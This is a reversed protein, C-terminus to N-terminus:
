IKHNLLDDEFLRIGKATAPYTDTNPLDLSTIKHWVVAILKKLRDNDQTAYNLALSTFKNDEDTSIFELVGEDISYKSGFSSNDALIKYFNLQRQYSYARIADQQTNKGWNYIPKSTKYDILSVSKDSNKKILDIKGTLKADGLNVNEPFFDHESVNSGSFFPKNLKIWTGLNESGKRKLLDYENDSLPYTRLKDNFYNLIALNKPFNGTNTFEKQTFELTKHVADGYMASPNLVEPVRLLHRFLFQQPGGRDVSLFDNLHTASLKYASLIPKLLSSLDNTPEPYINKWRKEYSGVFARAPVTPNIVSPIKANIQDLWVLRPTTKGNEATIFSTLYLKKKSRTLAVYFLRILDNDDKQSPEIWSLSYPLRFTENKSRTKQGWVDDHANLIIVNDWELGKAKYVTNLTVADTSTMYPSNDRLPLSSKEYLEIFNNFGDLGLYNNSNNQWEMFAQKLTNFQGIFHIYEGADILIASRNFYYERWPIDWSSGDDLLISKNGLLQALTLDFPQNQAQKGLVKIALSFKRLRDSKSSNLAKFWGKHEKQASVATEWWENSGLQWYDAALIKALFSEALQTRGKSTATVLGILNLIEIIRPQKLIQERREYSIPISEALLYPALTELYKHKPALVAISSPNAGKAILRKIETAINIYHEAETKSILEHLETKKDSTLKKTLNPLFDELRDDAKVMIERSLNLLEPGSRYSNTLIVIEPDRWRQIFDNMISNKAGQFRYIAQDDDGVVMINPRNENVPNDALLNLLKEQAGNTDQYEDVLIYQYQEQLNLKLEKNESIAQYARLIMDEFTYLGHKILTKQYDEYLNSLSILFENRQQDKYRWQGRKSQSLWRNRWETITKAHRGKPNVQDIAESLEDLSDSAAENPYKKLSASLTKHLSAYKAVDKSSPSASFAQGLHTNASKFFAQSKIAEARLEDPLLAAKKVWSITNKATLLHLFGDDFKKSLPNDHHLKAMLTQLLEYEGLENLHKALPQDYFYEPYQKIIHEGFGHFTYIQVKNAEVGVLNNIRQRMNEAAAETFTLCLINNPASDTKKLINAVRMSLLQTKGTGPGALVIVPGDIADVAQQQAHNLHSYEKDFKNFM